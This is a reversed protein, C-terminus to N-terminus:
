TPFFRRGIDKHPRGPRWVISAHVLELSVRIVMVLPLEVARVEVRLSDLPHLPLEERHGIERGLLDLHDDPREVEGGAVEARDGERDDTRSLRRWAGTSRKCVQCM